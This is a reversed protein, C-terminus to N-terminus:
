CVEASETCLPKTNFQGGAALTGGWTKLYDTTRKTEFGFVSMFRAAQITGQTNFIPNAAAFDTLEKVYAAAQKAGGTVGKFGITASEVLMNFRVGKEAAQTLPDVLARALNGIQPLGQIINSIDSLGPLIGGSASGSGGGSGTIAAKLKSFAGATKTASQETQRLDAQARRADLEVRGSLRFAEIRKAV